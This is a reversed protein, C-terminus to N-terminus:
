YDPAVLILLWFESTVGEALNKPEPGDAMGEAGGDV